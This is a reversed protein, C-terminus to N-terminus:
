SRRSSNRIDLDLGTKKVEVRVMRNREEEVQLILESFNKLSNCITFEDDTQTGGITEFTFGQLCRAFSKQADGLENPMATVNVDKDEGM